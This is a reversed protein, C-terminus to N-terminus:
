KKEREDLTRGTEATEGKLIALTDLTKTVADALDNAATAYPQAVTGSVQAALSSRKKAWRIM